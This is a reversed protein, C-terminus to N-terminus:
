PIGQLRERAQEVFRHGPYTNVLRELLERAQEFDNLEISLVGARYLADPVEEATPFLRPVELYTAVAEELREEGSLLEGLHLHASAALESNPYMSIFQEFRRRATTLNGRDLAQLVSAFAEDDADGGGVVDQDGVEGGVVELTDGPAGRARLREELQERQAILEERMNALSRQSQGVLEGLLLLQDQIALLRNSVDGRFEFVSQSLAGVSDLVARNVREVRRLALTATDQRAALTRVESELNRFDSKTACAALSSALVAIGAWRAVKTKRSM